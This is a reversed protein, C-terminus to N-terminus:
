KRYLCLFLNDGERRQMSDHRLIQSYASSLFPWRSQNSQSSIFVRSDLDSQTSCKECKSSFGGLRFVTGALIALSWFEWSVGLSQSQFRPTLIIWNFLSKFVNLM